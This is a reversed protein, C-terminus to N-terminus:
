IQISARSRKWDEDGEEELDEEGLSIKGLRTEM